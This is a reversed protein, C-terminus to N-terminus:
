GPHFFGSVSVAVGVIWVGFIFYSFGVLMMENAASAEYGRVLEDWALRNEQYAQALAKRRLVMVVHLHHRWALYIGVALIGAVFLGLSVRPWVLTKMRDGTGMFDLMAGASTLNITFLYKITEIVLVDGTRRGSERYERLWEDREERQEPTLEGHRDFEPMAEGATEKILV